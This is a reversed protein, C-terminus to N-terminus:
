FLGAPPTLFRNYERDICANSLGLEHWSAWLDVPHPHTEWSKHGQFPKVPGSPVGQQQQQQQPQPQPQPQPPQGPGPQDESQSAGHLANRNWLNVTKYNYKSPDGWASTGDDIEIKRRISEPSPEEWGTAEEEKVSAPGPGGLWGGAPPKGPAPPAGWCGVEQPKSWDPSGQRKPAEGWGQSRSPKPLEGWGHSQGPKAPEEWGAPGGPKASGNGAGSWRALGPKPAEKWGSTSRDSDSSSSSAKRMEGWHNSSRLSEGWSDAPPVAWGPSAKPAEAWGQKLREAENQWTACSSRGEQGGGGGSGGWSQSGKALPAPAAGEEWGGQPAPGRSDGWRAVPKADVWSAGAPRPPPAPPGTGHLGQREAAGRSSNPQGACGGWAETGNNAKRAGRPSLETDWATNQKIPTQGWGSNSLVRPDLDARSVLSQLLAQPDAKRRERGDVPAKEEPGDGGRDETDGARAKAWGGNQEVARSFSQQAEVSSKEEEVSKWLSTFTKGPGGTGEGSSQKPPPNEWEGDTASSGQAPGLGLGHEWPTSQPSGVGAVGKWSAGLGKEGSLDLASSGAGRLGPPRQTAKVTDSAAHGSPDPSPDGACSPNFSGGWAPGPLAGGDRGEGHSQPPVLTGNLLPPAQPAPQSSWTCPGAQSGAPEHTQGSGAPNPLSSTAVNTTNKNPGSGKPNPNPPQGGRPGKQTGHIHANGNEQLSNWSSGLAGGVSQPEAPPAVEEPGKRPRGVPM